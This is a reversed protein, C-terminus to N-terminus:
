CTSARAGIDFARGAAHTQSSVIIDIRRNSDQGEDEALMAVVLAGYDDAMARIAGLLMHVLGAPERACWIIWEGDGVDEVRLRPLIAHPLALRARDPLDGLTDLFGDFDAGGFRLLRRIPETHGNAVLYTGLDELLDAQTRDLRDAASALVADSVVRDYSLMIEFGELPAGPSAALVSRWVAPGYSDSIFSQLAPALIGTM